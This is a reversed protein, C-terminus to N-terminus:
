PRMVTPFSSPPPHSARARARTGLSHPSHPTSASSRSSGSIATSSRTTTTRSCSRATRARRPAPAAPPRPSRPTMSPRSGTRSSPSGPRRSSDRESPNPPEFATETALIMGVVEVLTRHSDRSLKQLQLFAGDKELDVKKMAVSRLPRAASAQGGIGLAVSRGTPRRQPRRDEPRLEPHGRREPRRLPRTRSPPQAPQERGRDGGLGPPRLHRRPARVLRPRIRDTVTQRLAALANADPRGVLLIHRSQLDFPIDRDPAIPVAVNSWRRAIQRQLLEAAERQADAEKLTGFVIVAREPEDEFSDISWFGGGPDDPLGRDKLWADFFSSNLPKVPLAAVAQRFEATSVSKGAHARGFDDM